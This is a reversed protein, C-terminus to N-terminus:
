PEKDLKSVEWFQEKLTQLEILVKDVTITLQQRLSSKIKFILLHVCMLFIIVRLANRTCETRYLLTGRVKCHSLYMTQINILRLFLCKQCNLCNSTFLEWVILHLLWLMFNFLLQTM